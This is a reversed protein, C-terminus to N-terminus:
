RQTKVIEMYQEWDTFTGVPTIILDTFKYDGTHGWYGLSYVGRNLITLGEESQSVVSAGMDEFNDISFSGDIMNECLTVQAGIGLFTDLMSNLEGSLNEKCLAINIRCEGFATLVMQARELIQRGSLSSGTLESYKELSPISLNIGSLGATKYMQLIEKSILSGNTTLRTDGYYSKVVTIYDCLNNLLMAEGGMITCYEFFSPPYRHLQRKLETVTLVDHSKRTQYCFKCSYNCHLNTIIRLGKLGEEM